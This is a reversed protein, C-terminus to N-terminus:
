AATLSITASGASPMCRGYRRASKLRCCARLWSLLDPQAPPHHSRLGPIGTQILNSDLTAIGPVALHEFAEHAMGMLTSEWPLTNQQMAM